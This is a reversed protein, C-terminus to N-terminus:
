TKENKNGEKSSHNFNEQYFIMYEEKEEKWIKYEADIQEEKRNWRKGDKYEGEYILQYNLYEKGNGNKEGNKYEGVFIIKGNIDYEKGIGDKKGNLYEKM